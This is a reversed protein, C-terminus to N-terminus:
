AAPREATSTTLNHVAAHGAARDTLERVIQAALHSPGHVTLTVTVDHLPQQPEDVVAGAARAQEAVHLGSRKDYGPDTDSM